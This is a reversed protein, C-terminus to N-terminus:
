GSLEDILAKAERLDPLDFGETFWNYIEALLFRAQQRCGEKAVLQALSITARLEALRANQQRALRIANCLSTRAQEAGSPTHALLIGRVHYLHPSAQGEGAGTPCGLADDVVQLGEQTRGAKALGYALIRFAWGFPTGGAVKIASISGQLECIGQELQGELILAAARYGGALPLLATFGNEEALAALAEAQVKMGPGTGCYMEALPTVCLANSLIFPDNCRIATALMQGVRDRGRDPYGLAILTLALHGFSVVRQLELELALRQEPDFISIAKELHERAPVLEDLHALDIGLAFHAALLKAPDQSREAEAMLEDAIKLGTRQEMKWYHFLFEGYLVSFIPAQEGILACLERARTYVRGVQEAAFGKTARLSSGLAIQISLERRARESGDPLFKFLELARNQYGVAESYASRQEAQRGARYLYEVAKTRNASRGYHHALERLHDELRDAFEEEIAAGVREHLAGRREILVSSYAVEQTLAHKFTYEGQGGEDRKRIFAGAELTSLMERLQGEAIAAVRRVLSITFENGLVALTEVLNKQAPALRDIRSALIGHVTTPVKIERIPGVVHVAGNRRLVGQEFLAQVMEEIFLPNGATREIILRSLTALSAAGTIPSVSTVRDRRRDNDRMSDSTHSLISVIMEEANSSGLPEVRLERYPAKNGWDHRYEPRYSVLLLLRASTAREVLLNLLAQTEEDIWHLDEFIAVLPQRQAERLIIQALAQLTRRRRLQADMQALPGEAQELGLLAFLYRITDSLAPDLALISQRVKARRTEGDDSDAFNFYSQLLEIVPLYSSAKGHSVSYAQLVKCGGPIVAKFEHILRSKGAGAEAVVALVGGNGHIASELATKLEAIEQARGVFKTLGRHKSLEFHTRLSGLGLV